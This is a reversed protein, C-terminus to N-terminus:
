PNLNRRHKVESLIQSIDVTSYEGVKVKIFNEFLIWYLNINDLQECQLQLHFGDVFQNRNNVNKKGQTKLVELPYIVTQAIFGSLCGIGFLEKNTV